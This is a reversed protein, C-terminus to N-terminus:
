TGAAVDVDKDNNRVRQIKLVPKLAFCGGSATLSHELDFDVVIQLREEARAAIFKFAHNIKIGNKNMASTDLNCVVGNQTATNNEPKSTDLILRIQTIKGEPIGLEGLSLANAEGQHALLDISKNVTLTVWNDDNDITNDEPDAVEAAEPKGGQGNKAEDDGEQQAVHVQISGVLITVHDLGLPADMLKLELIAKGDSCGQGVLLFGFVALMMGSLTLTKM